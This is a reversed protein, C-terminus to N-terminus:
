PYLGRTRHADAVRGVGIMQAATRLSVGKERALASVQAYSTEMLQKLRDNVEDETWFYAQLDQVWEFYSVAVGGANALVDPVVRVNRDELVADADPTTPGNAGEVVFFAKVRDANGEHLVGELAAPVLVDVDLELLEENTITDTGPFGVVSESGEALHRLLAAPDLGRRSHVGGKVDSVAVVVCGADHLYQAALGGVKGFGQVAVTAGRHDVGAEHLASFAAYMVGRSTAGGRGQSGGLSVPKGTVVGTVTYGAHTSYTDMMWAMTQADTGVDPAPIDKEPGLLPMIESAYRRTVRELENGSLLRPDVAVGGKAGGYPIGILACKWTMWMALARVEDLDTSPHFRIGGKAPGRSLNHQVRYGHLVELRGDDRRLPVAVEMSRRPTALMAHMGDDLGLHRVAEALQHQASDLASM